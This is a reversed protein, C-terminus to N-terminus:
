KQRVYASLGYKIKISAVLSRAESETNFKNVCVGYYSSNSYSFEVVEKIPISKSAMNRMYNQADQRISFTKAIVYYKKTRDENTPNNSYSNNQYKPKGSGIILTSSAYDFQITGLKSLASQGLLLPASMSHVVSAKVNHITHEGIQIEKLILETGEVIDGNAIKYYTTGILDDEVLYGNKLMFFAETVSISVDSAGTDFIFNLRLGNVKCPMLYVGGQKTMKIQSQASTDTIFTLVALFFISFYRM